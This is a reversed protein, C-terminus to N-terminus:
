FMPARMLMMGACLGLSLCGTLIVADVLRSFACIYHRYILDSFSNLFPIGPVLYLVSTGITTMPATGISFLMDTAGLITSVFSCVLAVVRMDAKRSLMTQKIYYGAFTAVGVIAMSIPDGGFLRCFSANAFTVLLLVVWKNQSSSAIIKDFRSAATALNIKGDAIEWSLESLMTNINFDIATNQVTTTHTVRDTQEAGHVSINIHRPLIMIDAEKGYAAAIRRVNKELRICTSGCGLLWSSYHSLFLCLERSSPPVEGSDILKMATM